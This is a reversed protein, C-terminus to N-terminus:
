QSCDANPKSTDETVDLFENKVFLCDVAMAIPNLFSPISSAAISTNPLSGELPEELCVSSTILTPEAISSSGNGQPMPVRGILM